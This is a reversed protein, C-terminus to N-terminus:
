WTFLINDNSVYIYYGVFPTYYLCFKLARITDLLSIGIVRALIDLSCILYNKGPNPQTRSASSQDSSGGQGDEPGLAQNQAEMPPAQGTVASSGPIVAAM